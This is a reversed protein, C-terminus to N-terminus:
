KFYEPHKFPALAFIIAQEYGEQRGVANDTAVGYFGNTGGANEIDFDERLIDNLERGSRIAQLIKGRVELGASVGTSVEGQSNEVAIWGLEWATGDVELLGGEIGVYFDADPKLERAHKARQKAGALSEKASTPHDSVGSEAAVVSIELFDGPYMKRFASEVALKKPLNQSGVVIEM